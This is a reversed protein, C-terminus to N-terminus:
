EAGEVLAFRNGARQWLALVRRLLHREPQVRLLERARREGRRARLIEARPEVPEPGRRQVLGELLDAVPAVARRRPATSTDGFRSRQFGGAILAVCASKTPPSM